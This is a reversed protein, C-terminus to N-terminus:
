LLRDPKAASVEELANSRDRDNSKADRLTAYLDKVAANFLGVAWEFELVSEEVIEMAETIALPENGKLALRPSQKNLSRRVDNPLLLLLPSPPSDANRRKRREYDYQL